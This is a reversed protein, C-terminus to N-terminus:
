LVSYKRTITITIADKATKLKKYVTEFAKQSDVVQGVVKNYGLIICGASSAETVGRHMLIGDFAKVNLLRPLKGQCFNKYYEKQVFKGSVVSLTVSYTGVPIATQSKVKRKRNQEVTLVDSLGRDIDEITDCYYEGDIYLHGICYARSGRKVNAIRELTLKM